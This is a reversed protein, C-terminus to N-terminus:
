DNTGKQGIENLKHYISREVNFPRVQIPSVSVVARYLLLNQIMKNKPCVRRVAVFTRNHRHLSSGSHGLITRPGFSRGRRCREDLASCSAQLRLFSLLHILHLQVVLWSLSDNDLHIQEEKARTTRDKTRNKNQKTSHLRSNQYKHM